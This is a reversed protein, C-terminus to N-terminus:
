YAMNGIYQVVSPFCGHGELTQVPTSPRITSLLLSQTRSKSSIRSKRPRKAAPQTLEPAPGDELEELSDIDTDVVEPIIQEHNASKSGILSQLSRHLTHLGTEMPGHPCNKWTHDTSKCGQCLAKNHDPAVCASCHHLIRQTQEFQSLIRGTRSKWL